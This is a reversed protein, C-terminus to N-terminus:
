RLLHDIIGSFIGVGDSLLADPFDYMPSHLASTDTGAGIGFLAGPYKQTFHGFDESWPFPDDQQITELGTNEAATLVTNVAEESNVTVPFEETWSIDCDLEHASAINVAAREAKGALINMTQTSHTRLTAMVSGNGPSTGFAREGVRAHIVTVKAGENMSVSSQPLSSFAEIIQAVALAPSRGLHPEAAHSSAGTMEVIIGKSASAFVGRKVIINGMPFGPLNHLAFVIDPEISAFNVDSLVEQAGKGTEEAPQFLLIVSGHSLPNERLGAAVGLLIAMHGDHGCKHSVGATVSGYSLDTIDNIPLADMDCRLLIAPGSDTGKFVAAIGRGGLGTVLSDPEYATIYEEIAESTANERGSLEPNRHLMHRIKVLDTEM